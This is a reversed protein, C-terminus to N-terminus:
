TEEEIRESVKRTVSLVKSQIQKEMQATGISHLMRSQETVSRQITKRLEVDLSVSVASSYIGVMLLYSSLGMFSVSALGFPPYPATVL